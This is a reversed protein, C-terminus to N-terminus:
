TLEGFYNETAVVQSVNVDWNGGGATQDTGFGVKGGIIPVSADYSSQVMSNGLIMGVRRGRFTIGAAVGNDTLFTSSGSIAFSSGLVTEVGGARFILTASTGGGTGELELCLYNDDDVYRGIVRVIYGSASIHVMEQAEIRVSYDNTPMNLVTVLHQLGDVGGGEGHMSIVSEASVTDLAHSGSAVDTGDSRTYQTVDVGNWDHLPTVGQAATPGAFVATCSGKAIAGGANTYGAHTLRIIIKDGVVVAPNSAVNVTGTTNVADVAVSASPTGNILVEWTLSGATRGLDVSCSFAFLNGNIPCDPLVHDDVFSDLPELIDATGETWSVGTGSAVSGVAIEGPGGTLSAGLGQGFVIAQASLLVTQAGDFTDIGGAAGAPLQGIPVKGGGDLQPVGNPQGFDATTIAEGQDTGFRSM